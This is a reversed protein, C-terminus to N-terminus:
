QPQQTAPAQGATVAPAGLAATPPTIDVSENVRSYRGTTEITVRSPGQSLEQSQSMWVRTPQFDKRDIILRMRTAGSGSASSPATAVASGVIAAAGARYKEGMVMSIECSGPTQRVIRVDEVLDAFSAIIKRADATVMGYGPDAAGKAVRQWESGFVQTYENGNYSYTEYSYGPSEVVMHGDLAGNPKKVLDTVFSSNSNLRPDGAVLMTSSGTYRYSKWALMNGIARGLVERASYSPSRSCGAILLAFMVLALVAAALRRAWRAM